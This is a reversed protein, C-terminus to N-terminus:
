RHGRAHATLAVLGPLTRGELFELAAGGGTSVHSFQEAVGAQVVAAASDGGGVVVFGKHAALARATDLTGQAFDPREFLGLPGNWFVTRAEQWARRFDERTHPGVDFMQQDSPIRAISVVTPSAYMHPAVVADTPLLVPVKRQQAVALLRKAMLVQEDSAASVGMSIGQAQLFPFALSGGVLLRNVRQLLHEILKLKDQVKSGGLLAIYPREKPALLLSLQTVETELLFGAAAVPVHKVMGVISAHARHACGFADNIYVDIDTALAQAFDEDNAEEGPHFRLNELLLMQGAELTRSLKRVADGVPEDTLTLEDILPHLLTALREGVPTLSLAPTPVGQPRGLHSAVVVKAKNELLYRLTPLVARIRTDDGVQGNPTLPVNLDVRVFVRKNRVDVDRISKM